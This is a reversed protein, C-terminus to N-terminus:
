NGYYYLIYILGVKLTLRIESRAKGTLAGGKLRVYSLIRIYPCILTM